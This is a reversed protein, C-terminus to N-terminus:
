KQLLTYHQGCPVEAWQDGRIKEAGVYSRAPLGAIARKGGSGRRLAAPHPFLSPSNPASGVEWRRRAFFSGREATMQVAREGQGSRTVGPIEHRDRRVRARQLRIDGEGAIPPECRDQPKHEGAHLDHHGARVSARGHGRHVAGFRGYVYYFESASAHYHLPHVEGPQLWYLGINLDESGNAARSVLEKVLGQDYEPIGMAVFRPDNIPYSPVDDVHIVKRAPDSM